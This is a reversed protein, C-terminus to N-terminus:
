LWEPREERFNWTEMREGVMIATGHEGNIEIRLDTGPWLATSAQVVGQAGNAYDVFALTTDELHLTPHALNNMRAQVRRVPGMLYQLLDIYHFLQQITVGAGSTGRRSLSRRMTLPSGARRGM